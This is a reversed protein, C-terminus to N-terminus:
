ALGDQNLLKPLAHELLTNAAHIRGLDEAQPIFVYAQQVTIYWAGDREVYAGVKPWYSGMKEGLDDFFDFADTLVWDLVQCFDELNILPKGNKDIIINVDYTTPVTTTLKAM